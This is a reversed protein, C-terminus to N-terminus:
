EDTKPGTTARGQIAKATTGTTATTEGGVRLAEEVERRVAEMQRVEAEAVVPRAETVVTLVAELSTAVEALARRTAAGEARVVEIVALAAALEALLIVGLVLVATLALTIM